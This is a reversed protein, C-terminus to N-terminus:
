LDSSKKGVASEIKLKLILTKDVVKDRFIQKGTAGHGRMLIELAKIKESKKNEFEIKGYGIISCFKTTWDCAQPGTILQSASEIEFCVYNNEKLIDIKRGTHSSHFYIIGDDYGYNLPLVYPIGKDVMAIRCINTSKIHEEIEKFDTIEQEKRRM